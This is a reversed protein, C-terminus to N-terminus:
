EEQSSGKRPVDRWQPALQTLVTALLFASAYVWHSSLGREVALATAFAAVLFDWGTYLNGRVGIVLFVMAPLGAFVAYAWLDDTEPHNGVSGIIAQLLMALITLAAVRYGIRRM